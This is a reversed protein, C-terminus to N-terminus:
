EKEGVKVAKMRIRVYDIVWKGEIYLRDTLQAKAEQLIEEKLAKDMGEFPATVFMNIWDCLGDETEQVTPRDFLLAYTVKLGHRELIPAYEGITPFYFTRPYFLDRQRFCQELTSHVAEACGKGGFEFVLQGGTKLNSAINAILQDQKEADIWHLVANSFIADAKEELTFDTADAKQFTLDPHASKAVELMQESADLGLVRYGRGALVASLAGNGCGLDVVFSGEKADLLSLVDEGYQHVFSFHDRYGEANWTINM